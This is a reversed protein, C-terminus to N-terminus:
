QQKKKWDDLLMEIIEEIEKGSMTDPFYKNIIKKSINVRVRTPINKRDREELVEFIERGNMECDILEHILEANVKCDSEIYDNLIDQTESSLEAIIGGLEISIKRADVMDMLEKNLGTLKIYRQVQRGSLGISKGIEEASTDADPMYKAVNRRLTGQHKIAEMRMKFAYAKESPLLERQLNSDVMAIVAEDDSFKKIIAPIDVMGLSKAAHVRRHGSVLEYGGVEIRRVIIPNMIGQAEISDKLMEMAEDDIVKFPHNKFARIENIPIMIANGDETKVPMPIVSSRILESSINGISNRM